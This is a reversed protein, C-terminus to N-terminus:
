SRNNPTWKGAKRLEFMDEPSWGRNGWHPQNNSFNDALEVFHSAQAQTVYFDYQEMLRSHILPKSMLQVATFINDALYDGFTVDSQTDPVHEDLYAILDQVEEIDAEMWDSFLEYEMMQPTVPRKPKGVQSKLIERIGRNDVKENDFDFFYYNVLLDKNDLRYTMLVDNWILDDLSDEDAMNEEGGVYAEYEELADELVEVGRLEILTEFFHRAEDVRRTKEAEAEWDVGELSSVFVPLMHAILTTDTAYYTFVPPVPRVVDGREAADEKTLEILGGAEKLERAFTFSDMGHKRLVFLVDETRMTLRPVILDVLRQKSMSSLNGKINLARAYTILEAKSARSYLDRMTKPPTDRDADARIMDFMAQGAQRKHQEYYRQKAQLRERGRLGAFISRHQGEVEDDTDPSPDLHEYDELVNYDGDYDDYDDDYGGDGEGDLTYTDPLIIIKQLADACDVFDRASRIIRSEPTIANKTALEEFYEAFADSAGHTMEELTIIGYPFIVANNFALLVTHGIIPLNVGPIDDIELGLGRVAIAHGPISFLVDRGERQILFVGSLAHEWQAIQRLEGPALRDPNERVYDGVLYNNRGEAWVVQAVDFSDQLSLDGNREILNDTVNLRNNAYIIFSSFLGEFRKLQKKTIIM